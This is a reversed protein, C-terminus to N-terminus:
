DNREQASHFKDGVKNTEDVRRVHGEIGDFRGSVFIVYLPQSVPDHKGGKTNCLACDHKNQLVNRKIENDLRYKQRPQKM